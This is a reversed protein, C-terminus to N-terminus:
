KLNQSPKLKIFKAIRMKSKEFYDTAEISADNWFNREEAESKFKPIAKLSASAKADSTVKSKDFM